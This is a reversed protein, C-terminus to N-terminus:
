GALNKHKEVVTKELAGGPKADPQADITELRDLPNALSSRHGLMSRRQDDDSQGNEEERKEIQM